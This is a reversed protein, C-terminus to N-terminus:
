RQRLNLLREFSAEVDHIRQAVTAGTLTCEFNFPGTYGIQDLATLIAKWDLVGQGPLWHKEDVGDYDNVHTAILHSGLRRIDGPVDAHRDMSHNTDMCAGFTGSDGLADLMWLMEDATNGLCTRPLLEIAVRIGCRAAREGIAALSEVARGLRLQRDAQEVPEGSAHVVMIGAGLRATLDVGAMISQEMGKRAQGADALSFDYGPGFPVHVSAVELRSARLIDIAADTPGQGGNMLSAPMVELTQVGSQALAGIAEPSFERSITILSVGLRPQFM